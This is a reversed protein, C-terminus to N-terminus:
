PCNNVLLTAKTIKHDAESQVAHLETVEPETRSCTCTLSALKCDGDDHLIHLLVKDNESSM